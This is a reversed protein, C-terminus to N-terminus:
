LIVKNNYKKIINQMSESLHAVFPRFARSMLEMHRDNRSHVFGAFNDSVSVRDPYIRLYAEVDRQTYNQQYFEYVLTVVRENVYEVSVECFMNDGTHVKKSVIPASSM